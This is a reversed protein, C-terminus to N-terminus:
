QVDATGNILALIKDYTPDVVVEPLYTGRPVRFKSAFVDHPATRLCYEVGQGRSRQVSEKGLISITTEVMVPRIFTQCVYDCAPALWGVLSKTLSATVYPQLLDDIKEGDELGFTREQGVIIVNCELDLLRRLHEKCRLTCQGYQQQTALGWSKQEPVPKGLVESLVLDQYATVYDLVVTGFFQTREQEEALASLQESETLVFKKVRGGKNEPTKISRLEGPRKGGSCLAWLLPGPFTGALTTKGTGSKGYLLMKIGDSDTSDIDELREFIGGSPVAPKRVAKVPAHNVQKKIVPM